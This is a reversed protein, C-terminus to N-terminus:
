VSRQLLSQFSFFMLVHLPGAAKETGESGERGSKKNTNSSFPTGTAPELTFIETLLLRGQQIKGLGTGRTGGAAGGPYPQGEEPGKPGTEGFSHCLTLSVQPASRLRYIVLVPSPSKGFVRVSMPNDRIDQVLDTTRTGCHTSPRATMALLETHYITEQTFNTFDAEMEPERELTMYASSAVRPMNEAMLFVNGKDAGEAPMRVATSILTLTINWSAASSKLPSPFHNPNCRGKLPSPFHNPNCRGKLPTPFANPNDRGKLPSPYHNPNCRGKLACLGPLKLTRHLIKATGLVACKLISIESPTGPIQQLYEGLKPTVAGLARTVMPLMTAKVKWM